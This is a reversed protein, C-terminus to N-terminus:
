RGSLSANPLLVNPALPVAIGPPYTPLPEPLFDKLKPFRDCLITVLMLFWGKRFVSTRRKRRKSRKHPQTVDPEVDPLRDLVEDPTKMDEQIEELVEQQTGYNFLFLMSVSIALWIRSVREPDTMRTNQWQFGGRKITRFSQEIWVRLSYWGAHSLDPSIDTVIIWPEKAEDAWYTLLTCNIPNSKFATGRGHWHSGREPVFDSLPIFRTSGEPRFTGASKIRMFPHWGQQKIHKFLWSSYLGRDTLVLVQMYNPIAPKILDLLKIWEPNWKHSDKANLIKWAIPIANGRYLVSITLCTFRDKLNSADMALPLQNSKWHRLIWTLLPAFSEEVNVERRKSGRKTKADFYWERLRQRMTFENIKLIGSLLLTVVTSSCCQALAIGFSWLGLVTAQPKSLHPMETIVTQIWTNIQYLTNKRFYM